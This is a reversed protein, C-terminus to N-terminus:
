ETEAEESLVAKAATELSGELCVKELPLVEV